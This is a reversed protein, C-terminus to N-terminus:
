RFFASVLDSLLLSIIGPERVGRGHVCVEVTCVHRFRCGSILLMFFDEQWPCKQAGAGHAWACKLIRNELPHCTALLEALFCALFSCAGAETCWIAKQYM